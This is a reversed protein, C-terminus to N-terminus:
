EPILKGSYSSGSTTKYTIAVERTKITGTYGSVNVNYTDKISKKMDRRPPQLTPEGNGKPIHGSYGPIQDSNKATGLLLDQTTTAMAGFSTILPRQGPQHGMDGMDSSYRSKQTRAEVVKDPLKASYLASPEAPGVNVMGIRENVSRVTNIFDDWSVAVTSVSNIADTFIMLFRPPLDIGHVAHLVEITKVTPCNGTMATKHKDFEAQYKTESQSLFTEKEKWFDPFDLRNASRHVFRRRPAAKRADERKGAVGRRDPDKYQTPNLALSADQSVARRNSRINDLMRPKEYVVSFGSSGYKNHVNESGLNQTPPITRFGPTYGSYKCAM